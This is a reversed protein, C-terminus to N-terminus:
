KDHRWKGFFFMMHNMDMPGELKEIDSLMYEANSWYVFEPCEYTWDTAAKSNELYRYTEVYERLQPIMDEYFLIGLEKLQEKTYTM